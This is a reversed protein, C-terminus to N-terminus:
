QAAENNTHPKIALIGSDDQWMAVEGDISAVYETYALGWWGPSFALVEGLKVQDGVSKFIFGELVDDIVPLQVVQWGQALEEEFLLHHRKLTTVQYSFLPIPQDYLLQNVTARRALGAPVAIALTYALAVRWILAVLHRPAIALVVGRAQMIRSMLYALGIGLLLGAIATVLGNLLFLGWLERPTLGLSKLVSLERKSDIFSLLLATLVGLTLFVFILLVLNSFGQYTDRAAKQAVIQAQQSTLILADPYFRTLANCASQMQLREVLNYLFVNYGTAALWPQIDEALILLHGTMSSSDFTGGITLTIEGAIESSTLTLSGATPLGLNGALRQNVLVQGPQPLPGQYDNEPQLALANLQGYPSSLQLARGTAMLQPTPRSRWAGMPEVPAALLEENALEVQFDTLLELPKAKRSFNLGVQTMYSQYILYASCTLCTLLLAALHIKWTARLRQRALRLMKSM